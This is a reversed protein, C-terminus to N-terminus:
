PRDKRQRAARKPRQLSADSAQTIIRLMAKQEQWTQPKAPKHPERRSNVKELLEPLSPLRKMRQFAEVHWATFLALQYWQDFRVQAGDREIGIDDLTMSWFRDTTIGIAAANVRMTRQGVEWPSLDKVEVGFVSKLADLVAVLGVDDIIDGAEDPTPRDPQVVAWQVITRIARLNLAGHPGNLGALVDGISQQCAAQIDCIANTGFRLAYSRGTTGDLVVDGRAPHVM